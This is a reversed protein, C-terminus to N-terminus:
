SKISKILCIHDSGTSKFERKKLNTCQDLGTRLLGCTAQKSKEAKPGESIMRRGLM